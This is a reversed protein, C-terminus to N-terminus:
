RSASEPHSPAPAEAARDSSRRRLLFAAAGVVWVPVALIVHYSLAFALAQAVPIGRLSLSFVVGAEFTGFHAPPGPIAIALNISVLVLLAAGLSVPLGFAHFALLLIGSEIGWGALSLAVVRVAVRPRSSRLVAASLEALRPWRSLVPLLRAGRLIMWAYVGLMLASAGVVWLHVEGFLAALTALLGLALFEGIREAITAGLDAALGGRTERLRAARVVDQAGFGVAAGALLGEAQALYLQAFPPPRELASGWRIARVPLYLGLNLVVILAVAWIPVMGVPIEWSDLRVVAIALLAAPVM